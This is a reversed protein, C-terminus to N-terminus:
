RRPPQVTGNLWNFVTGRQSGIPIGYDRTAIKPIFSNLGQVRLVAKNYLNRATPSLEKGYAPCIAEALSYAVFDQYGQPMYFQTQVTPLAALDQYVELEILYNVNQMPWLFIQGNPFNNNYYLDTPISSPVTRVSNAMWWDHDRIRIPTRVIPSVNNLVINADMIGIPRAYPTAFHPFQDQPTSYIALANPEIENAVNAAFVSLSFQTPTSNTVIFDLVNLSPTLCGAVSVTDGPQYKNAGIYTAVNATLSASSIVVAEGILLPQVSPVLTYTLFDTAYINLGDSNFADLMAALKKRCYDIDEGPVNDFPSYANIEFLARTIIDLTTIPVPM